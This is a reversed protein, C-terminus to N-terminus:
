LQYLTEIAKFTRKVFGLVESPEIRIVADRGHLINSSVDYLNIVEKQFDKLRLGKCVLRIIEHINRNELPSVNPSQFKGGLGLKNFWDRFALELIVRCLGVVAYMQGFLFSERIEIFYHGIKPPLHSDAIITGFDKKREFYEQPDLRQIMEEEFAFLVRDIEDDVEKESVSIGKSSFISEITEPPLNKVMKLMDNLEKDLLFCNGDRVRRLTDRTRPDRITDLPCSEALLNRIEEETGYFQKRLESSEKGKEAREKVIEKNLQSLKGALEMLKKEEEVMM